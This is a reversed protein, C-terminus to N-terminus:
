KRGTKLAECLKQRIEPKALFQRLKRIRPDPDGKRWVMDISFGSRCDSIPICRLRENAIVYSADPMIGVYQNKIISARFLQSGQADALEAPDFGRRELYRAINTFPAPFRPKRESFGRTPLLLRCARLDELSVSEREGLPHSHHIFASLGMPCLTMQEVWDYPEEEASVYPFIVDVTGEYLADLTPTRVLSLTVDPCYEGLLDIIRLVNAFQGDAMYAVALAERGKDLYAELEEQMLGYEEYINQAHRSVIEGARTLEMRRGKRELLPCGLKEEMRAITRSLAPQSTYLTQAAKTFNREQVVTLFSKLERLEFEM